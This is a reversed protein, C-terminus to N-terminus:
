RMLQKVAEKEIQAFYISVVDDDDDDDFAAVSNFYILLGICYLSALRGYSGPSYM